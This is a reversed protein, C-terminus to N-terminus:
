FFGFVQINLTYFRASGRDLGKKYVIRTTITKKKYDKRIM